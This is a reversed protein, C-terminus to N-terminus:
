CSYMFGDRQITFVQLLFENFCGRKLLKRFKILAQVSLVMKLLILSCTRNLGIRLILLDLQNRQIAFVHHVSNRICPPSFQSYM